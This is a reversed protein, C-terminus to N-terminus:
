PEAQFDVTTSTSGALFPAFSADGALYVKMFPLVWRRVAEHAEDQTLTTPPNCDASPFCLDSFAFHGADRVEVLFKPPQADAYATRIAPVSVVSDIQGLMHLSPVTLVPMGPVAPALPVAVDFRSDLALVRYTTFGGFSHGMMGLRTEDIAGFFFSGSDADALLMQDLVYIIDHPREAASAAQAGPTGCSPFDYLTNGPHPPAVVVFGYSALMPTLFKSQWPYGCSGHSFMVLPYSGGSLDLPADVVGGYAPDVPGSGPPAPYWIATDLVRDTQPDIFSPKTFTVITAGVAFPGDERPDVCTGATWEVVDACHTESSCPNREARPTDACRAPATVRCSVPERANAQFRGCAVRSSGCTAGKNIRKATQACAARVEGADLAALLAGRACRQYDDRGLGAFSACPCATETSERLMALARQDPLRSAGTLCADDALASGALLLLAALAPRITTM